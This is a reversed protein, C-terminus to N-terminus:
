VGIKKKIEELSVLKGIRVEKESKRLNAKTQESFELRDEILDWIIHEYSEKAHAKMNRLKQLLENSVQITTDM